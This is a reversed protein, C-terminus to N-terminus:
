LVQNFSGTLFVNKPDTIWYTDSWWHSLGLAALATLVTAGIFGERTQKFTDNLHLVPSVILLLIALILLYSVSAHQVM